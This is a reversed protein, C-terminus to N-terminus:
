PLLQALTGRTWAFVRRDETLRYRLNAGQGLAVIQFALREPEEAGAIAAERALGETAADVASRVADRVLGPRDDFEASVQGWFCGGSLVPLEIYRLYNECLARLRPAGEPEGLAPEVVAAVFRAAAVEIVALQLEKKSGFHRFLGSKSMEVARALRGITVGELGEASALDVACELIAARIGPRPRTNAATV